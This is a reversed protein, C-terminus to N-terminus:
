KIENNELKGTLNFNKLRKLILNPVIGPYIISINELISISERLVIAGYAFDDFWLFILSENGHVKYHTLVHTVILVSCYAFLKYLVQGFGKSQIECHKWAKMLGLVTDGAVLIILFMIFQWDSFVYTEIFQIVPTLIVAFTIWTFLKM